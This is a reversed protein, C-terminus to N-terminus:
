AISLTPFPSMGVFFRVWNPRQTVKQYLRCRIERMAEVPGRTKFTVGVALRVMHVRCAGRVVLSARWHLGHFKVFVM